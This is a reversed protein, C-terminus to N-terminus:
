TRVAGAPSIDLLPPTEPAAPAAPQQAAPPADTTQAVIEVVIRGAGREGAADASKFAAFRPGLEIAITLPSEGAHVAKIIDPVPSPPLAADLADADLDSLRHM